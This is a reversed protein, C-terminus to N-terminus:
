EGQILLFVSAKNTALLFDPISTYTSFILHIIM